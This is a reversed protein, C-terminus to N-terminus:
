CRLLHSKQANEAYIKHWHIREQAQDSSRCLSRVASILEGRGPLWSYDVPASQCILFCLLRGAHHCHPETPGCLKQELWVLGIVPSRFVKCNYLMNWKKTQKNSLKMATRNVCLIREYHIRKRSKIYNLHETCCVNMRDIHYFMRSISRKFLMEWFHLGYLLLSGM